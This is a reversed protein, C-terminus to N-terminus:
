EDLPERNRGKFITTSAIAPSATHDGIPDRRSCVEVAFTRLVINQFLAVLFLRCTLDPLRKSFSRNGLIPGPPWNGLIRRLKRSEQRGQMHNLDRRRNFFSRVRAKFGAYSKAEGFVCIQNSGYVRPDFHNIVVVARAVGMSRVPLM